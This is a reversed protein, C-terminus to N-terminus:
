NNSVVHAGTRRGDILPILFDAFRDASRKYGEVTMHVYDRAMLPPDAAAWTQAGCPSPMASSWDWFDVGLRQAAHRQAERVQALKPPTPLRCPAAGEAVGAKARAGDPPGVIVIRATPRLAQIKRVIQEYQAAYAAVDLADDFGENTGFALVIVDPAIRRMDGALNDAALRQLVQATAGPFGLSVYSVGDGDRDVQVGTVTVPADSLARVAIDHFGEGKGAGAEVDVTAREDATGDLNIEGDPAGDVLVEARGGGPQKLFAVEARDYSVGDRAKLSIEAGARRAVANYGSLYFRRKADSQQVSEYSWGDSAASEFLASRVGLHPKGPALYALGGAGFAEQLRQRVRGSFFDAATHSDGLQLVTLRRGGFVDAGIEGYATVEGGQRPRAPLAAAELASLAGQGRVRSLPSRDIAPKSLMAVRLMNAAPNAPPTEEARPSAAAPDSPESPLWVAALRPDSRALAVTELKAPLALRSAAELSRAVAPDGAVGVAGDNATFSAGVAGVLLAMAWGLLASTDHLRTV